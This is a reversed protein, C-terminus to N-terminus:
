HSADCGCHIDDGPCAITSAHLLITANLFPSPIFHHHASSALFAALFIFSHSTFSLHLSSSPPQQNCSRPGPDPARHILPASHGSHGSGQTPRSGQVLDQSPRGPPPLTSQGRTRRGPSRVSPCEGLPSSASLTPTRCCVGGKPGKRTGQKRLGNGM